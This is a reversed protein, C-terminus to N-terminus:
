FTLTDISSSLIDISTCFKNFINDMDSTAEPKYTMHNDHVLLERIDDVSLPLLPASYTPMAINKATQVAQKFLDVRVENKFDLTDVERHLWQRFTVDPPACTSTGPQNNSARTSTGPQNDSARTTTQNNSARTSISSQNDSACTSTGPQNDSACTSTSSECRRRKGVGSGGEERARKGRRVGECEGVKGGGGEESMVVGWEKEIRTFWMPRIVSSPLQRKNSAQSEDNGTNQSLNDKSSCTRKYFTGSSVSESLRSQALVRVVPSLVPRKSSRTGSIPELPQKPLKVPDWKVAPVPTKVIESVLQSETKLGGNEDGERVSTM